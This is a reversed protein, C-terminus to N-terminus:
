EVLIYRIYTIVINDLNALNAEPCMGCKKQTDCLFIVQEYLTIGFTLLGRYYLPSYGRSDRPHGPNSEGGPLLMNKQCAVM